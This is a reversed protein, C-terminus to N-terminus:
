VKKQFLNTIVGALSKTFLVPLGGGAEANGAERENM